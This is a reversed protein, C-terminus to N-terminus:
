KAERGWVELEYLVPCNGSTQQCQWRFASCDTESFTVICREYVERKRPGTQVKGVRVKIKKKASDVVKPHRGFIDSIKIIRVLRGKQYLELNVALPRNAGRFYRSAHHTWSVQSVTKLTKWGFDLYEKQNGTRCFWFEESFDPEPEVLKGDILFRWRDGVLDPRSSVVKAEPAINRPKAVGKRATLEAVIKKLDEQLKRWELAKDLDGKKTAVVMGKQIKALYKELVALLEAEYQKRVATLEAQYEIEVLTTERALAQKIRDIPAAALVICFMISTIM